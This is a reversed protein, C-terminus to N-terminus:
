SKIHGATAVKLIEKELGGVQVVNIGADTLIKRGTNEAVFKEPELAGVFVTTIRGALRLIRQVCPLNGSLRESCPELTTYLILGPPLVKSLHEESVGRQEALKMFCCQEAHTNGPLELTYGTALIQNSSPDVVLAGVRFNTSKPPSKQAEQLALQMYAKHDGPAPM